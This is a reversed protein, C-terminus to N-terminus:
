WSFAVGIGIGAKNQSDYSGQIRLNGKESIKWTAGISIAAEGDYSAIGMGMSYKEYELYPIASMAMASSIGASAVKRNEHVTKEISNLRTNYHNMTNQMHTIQTSNQEVKQNTEWLQGGNVADLSDKEVKGNAVGTVVRDGMNVVTDKNVDENAAIIIQNKERDLQFIGNDSGAKNNLHQLAGHISLDDQGLDFANGASVYGNEDIYAGEGFAKVIADNSAYIQGGNMADKSDEKIAGDKVGTLTREDDGNSIDFSDAGGALDNDIVIKDGDVKVIGETGAVIGDVKTDLEHVRGDLDDLASGVDSHISGDIFEYNPRTLKGNDDIGADGGLAGAIGGINNSNQTVNQNTDHLQGGNIADKSGSKIEGDSVGTLNRSDTGNSIDFIAADKALTNDFVIRNGSLRILGSTGNNINNVQTDINNIKTTNEIIDDGLQTITGDISEIKDGVYKFGAEVGDEIKTEEGLGLAESYNPSKLEGTKSDVKAGGGLAEAVGTLTTGQKTVENGVIEINKTNESVEDGLIMVTGEIGSITLDREHLQAGNIADYSSANVLGEEVGTLKRPNIEGGNLQARSIDFVEADPALDNDVIIFKGDSSVTILGAKGASINSIRNDLIDFGEKVTTVPYVDGTNPDQPAGILVDAYNPNKWVINGEEDVVYGADKDFLKAVQDQSQYLQSGNIADSSDNSVKGNAVGTLTRGSGDQNAFNFTAHDAGTIANDIVIQDGELKVLGVTGETINTINGEISKIEGGVYEFGEEVSNLDKDASLADKYNPMSLNGAEDFSAGAGM